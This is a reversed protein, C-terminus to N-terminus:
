SIDGFPNSESFDVFDSEFDDFIKNQSLPQIENYDSNISEPFFIADEGIFPRDTTFQHYEGDTAGMHAVKLILTESNWSTVEGEMDYGDFEQRVTSGTAYFGLIGPNEVELLPAYNYLHGANVINVGTVVGDTLVLELEASVGDFHNLHATYSNAVFEEDPIFLEGGSDIRYDLIQSYVGAQAHFEDIWGSMPKWDISNVLGAATYGIRFSETSIFNQTEPFTLTDSLIGDIYIKMTQDEVFVGIHNWDEVDLHANTTYISDDAYTGFVIAGLSDYGFIYRKSLDTTENGGTIIMASYDGIEPLFAPYVFFEVSGHNSNQSYYGEFGKQAVVNLSNDGFYGYDPTPAPINVEPIRTYGSGGDIIDVQTIEGQVNVHAVLEADLADPSIMQIEHQYAHEEEVVDIEDIGTDFDEDNYEFLECQMRFLPLQNLQYFPSETEVKMIQFLSQSLPLYIVDGERPRFQQQELRDGVLERWRRRAIVFTAQDRLEIGFKTFLDGEGDFGDTNEIYVEVKYADSFHSPVDDLFIEDVNVLERPLYYIDQGYFKISEVILDEYLNQEPRHGQSIYPNTAM